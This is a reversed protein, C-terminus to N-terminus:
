TYGRFFCATAMAKRTVASSDRAHAIFVHGPYISMRSKGKPPNRASESPSICCFGVSFFTSRAGCFNGGRDNVRGVTAHDARSIYKVADGERLKHCIRSLSKQERGDLVRM